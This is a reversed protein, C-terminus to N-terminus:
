HSLIYGLCLRVAPVLVIPLSVSIFVWILDDFGFASFFSIAFVDIVEGLQWAFFVTESIFM